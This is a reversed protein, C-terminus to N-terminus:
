AYQFPVTPVFLLVTDIVGVQAVPVFPAIVSVHALLTTGKFTTILPANEAEVLMVSEPNVAPAHSCGVVPPKSALAAPGHAMAM